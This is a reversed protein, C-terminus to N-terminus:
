RWIHGGNMISTIVDCLALCSCVAVVALPTDKSSMFICTVAVVRTAWEVFQVIRGDDKEFIDKSVTIYLLAIGGVLLGYRWNQSVEDLTVTVFGELQVVFKVDVFKKEYPSMVSSWSGKRVFRWDDEECQCLGQSQNQHFCIQIMNHWSDLIQKPVVMIQYAKAYSGLQRRSVGNVIVRGCYEFTGRVPAPTVNVKPNGVDIGHSEEIDHMGCAIIIAEKIAAKEVMYNCINALSQKMDDDTLVGCHKEFLKLTSKLCRQDDVMPLKEDRVARLISRRNKPGFLILGLMDIRSDLYALKTVADRIEKAVKPKQITSSYSGCIPLICM